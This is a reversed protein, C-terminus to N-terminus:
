DEMKILYQTLQELAETEDIGDTYVKVTAGEKIGLSLLKLLSTGKVKKGNGNEVEVKSNFTKALNVFVNGPRTHLGNKNTIIVEKVEM